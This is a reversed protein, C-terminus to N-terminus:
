EVKDESRKKSSRDGTFWVNAHPALFLSLWMEGYARRKISRTSGECRAFGEADSVWVSVSM